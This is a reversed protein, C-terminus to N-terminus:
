FKRDRDLTLAMDCRWSSDIRLLSFHHGSDSYLLEVFILAVVVDFSAEALLGSLRAATTGLSFKDPSIPFATRFRYLLDVFVLAVVVAFSVEALLGSLRTTTNGLSIEDSSILFATRFRNSYFICSTLLFSRLLWM